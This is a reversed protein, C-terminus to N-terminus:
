RPGLRPGKPLKYRGVLSGTPFPNSEPAINLEYCDEAPAKPQLPTRLFIGSNTKPTAKFEVHLEYDAFESTTMLYGVEGKTARIEGDTVQWDVDHIEQWGFLTEGDFLSIWGASIQEPTLRNHEAFALSCLLCSLALAYMPRM